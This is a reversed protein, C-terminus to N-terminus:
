AFIPAIILGMIVGLVTAIIAGGIILDKNNVICGVADEIM